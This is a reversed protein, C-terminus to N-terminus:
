RPGLNRLPNKNLVDVRWTHACVRDFLLRILCHEYVVSSRFGAATVPAGGEDPIYRVPRAKLIFRLILAENWSGLIVYQHIAFEHSLVCTRFHQEFAYGLTVADLEQIVYVGSGAAVLRGGSCQDPLGESCTKVPWGRDGVGLFQDSM